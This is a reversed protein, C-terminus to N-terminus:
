DTYVICFPPTGYMHTKTMYKYEPEKCDEDDTTIFIYPPIGWMNIKNYNKIAMYPFTNASIMWYDKDNFNVKPYAYKINKKLNFLTSAFYKSM